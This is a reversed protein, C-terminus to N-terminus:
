GIVVPTGANTDQVLTIADRCDKKRKYSEGQALIEGNEARLRWRWQFTRSKNHRTSYM